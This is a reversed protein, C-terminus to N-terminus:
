LTITPLSAEPRVAEALADIATIWDSPTTEWSASFRV